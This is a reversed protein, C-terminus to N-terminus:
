MENGLILQGTAGYWGGNVGNLSTSRLFPQMFYQKGREHFLLRHCIRSNDMAQTGHCQNLLANSM